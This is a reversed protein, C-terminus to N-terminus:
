RASNSLNGLFDVLIGKRPSRGAALENIGTADLPELTVRGWTAILGDVAAVDALCVLANLLRSALNVPCGNSRTTLKAQM